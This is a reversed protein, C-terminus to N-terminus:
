FFSIVATVFMVFGFLFGVRMFWRAFPKQYSEPAAWKDEVAWKEILDYRFWTVYSMGCLFFGFALATAGLWLTVFIRGWM